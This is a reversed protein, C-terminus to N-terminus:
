PCAWLPWKALMSLPSFFFCYSFTHAVHPLVVNGRSLTQARGPEQSVASARRTCIQLDRADPDGAPADCFTDAFFTEGFALVVAFFFTEPPVFRLFASM